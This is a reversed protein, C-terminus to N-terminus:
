VNCDLIMACKVWAFEQTKYTDHWVPNDANVGAGHLAIIIPPPELTNPTLNLPPKAMVSILCMIIFQITVAVFGFDNKEKFSFANGYQVTGDFDLFTFKMADGWEKVNLQIIPSMIVLEKSPPLSTTKLNVRVRCTAVTIRKPLRFTIFRTQSPAIRITTTPL